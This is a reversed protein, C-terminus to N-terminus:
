DGVTASVWQVGVGFGESDVLFQDNAPSESARDGAQASFFSAFEQDHGFLAIRWEGGAGDVHTLRLALSTADTDNGTLPTGNGRDEEFYNARASIGTSEGIDATYRVGGNLHESSAPVDIPGRDQPALVHFGGTDFANIGVYIGSSSFQESVSADLMYTSRDGVEARVSAAGAQPDRTFLHIVGGLASNGWLNSAGGRVVEVREITDLSVRSWYVWGGFPDNLPIDDLLVLTRSVGSPGIGRLSVGQSTPHATLSSSRRFLSFGPVQRLFDDTTLSASREVDDETLVTANAAVDEVPQEFRSASVVVTEEWVEEPDPDQGWAGVVILQLLVAGALVTRFRSFAAKTM